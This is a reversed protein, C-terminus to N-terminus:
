APVGSWIEKSLTENPTFWTRLEPEKQLLLDALMRGFVVSGWASLHTTDNGNLDYPITAEVGIADVYQLSYYNLDLYTANM